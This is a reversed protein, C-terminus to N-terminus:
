GMENIIEMHRDHAPSGIYQNRPNYRAQAKMKVMKEKMSLKKSDISFIDIAKQGEKSDLWKATDAPKHKGVITFELFLAGYASHRCNKIKAKEKLENIVKRYEIKKDKISIIKNKFKSM